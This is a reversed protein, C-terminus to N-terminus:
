IFASMNGTGKRIPASGVPLEIFDAVRRVWTLAPHDADIKAKPGESGTKARSVSMTLVPRCTEFTAAM